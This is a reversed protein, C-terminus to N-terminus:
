RSREPHAVTSGTIARVEYRTLETLIRDRSPKRTGRDFLWDDLLATSIIMAMTAPTAVEADIDNWGRAEREAMVQAVVNDITQTFSSRVNGLSDDDFADAAILALMLGRHTATFDYLQRTFGAILEPTSLTSLSANRWDKVLEDVFEEFPRLVSAEFLEAKTPFYRYLMAMTTGAQLSIQRLSAGHYGLRIFAERAAAVVEERAQGVPRRARRPTTVGTPDSAV